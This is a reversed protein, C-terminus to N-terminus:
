KGVCIKYTRSWCCLLSLYEQMKEVNVHENVEGERESDSIQKQAPNAGAEYMYVLHNGTDEVM